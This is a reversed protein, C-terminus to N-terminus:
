HIQKAHIRLFTILYTTTRVRNYKRAALEKKLEAQAMKCFTKELEKEERVMRDLFDERRKIQEMLDNYINQRAKIKNELASIFFDCYVFTYTVNSARFSTFIDISTKQTTVGHQSTPLFM